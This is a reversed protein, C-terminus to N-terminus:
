KKDQNAAVAAAASKAATQKEAEEKTKDQDSIVPQEKKPSRIVSCPQESTEFRPMMAQMNIAGALLLTIVTYKISKM